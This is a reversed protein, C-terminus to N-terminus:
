ILPDLFFPRDPRPQGAPPPDVYQAGDPTIALRGDADHGPAALHGDQFPKMDILKKLEEGARVFGPSDFSGDQGAQALADKGAIRLSLNAWWFMGPWKDKEGVALPTIGADQLTKVDTLFENWTTPPTDNDACSQPM